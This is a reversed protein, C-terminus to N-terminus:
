REGGRGRGEWTEEWEMSKEGAFMASLEGGQGETHGLRGIERSPPCPDKSVKSAGLVAQCVSRLLEVFGALQGPAEPVKGPQSRAEKQPIGRVLLTQPLSTAPSLGSFLTLGKTLSAEERSLVESPGPNNHAALLHGPIVTDKVVGLFEPRQEIELEM